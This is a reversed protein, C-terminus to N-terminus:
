SQYFATIGGRIGFPLKSYFSFTLDHPRDFPMLFEQSPADVILGGSAAWDHESNGTAISRTYQLMM